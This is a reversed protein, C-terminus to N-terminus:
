YRMCENNLINRNSFHRGLRRREIILKNETALNNVVYKEREKAKEPKTTLRRGVDNKIFKNIM